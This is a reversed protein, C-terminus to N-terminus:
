ARDHLDKGHLCFTINTAKLAPQTPSGGASPTHLFGHAPPQRLANGRRRAGRVFRDLSRFRQRGPHPCQRGADGLNKWCIDHFAKSRHSTGMGDIQVVIFGLEAIAHQRNQLGFSKPVFAGQPGAYIQEIVPYKRKPDFNSPQILIGHIDTKGDRVKCKKAEALDAQLLENIKEPDAMLGTLYM